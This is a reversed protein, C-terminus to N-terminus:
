HRILSKGTIEQPIDINMINLLTPAIDCLKGSELSINKNIGSGEEFILMLPVPNTTHATHPINNEEDKMLEANGHDATILMVGDNRIIADKLRGIATDVTEVAKVAAEMSGTHGVMDTNAFNVVTFDYKNSNITEVLKDTIEPASMEPQKDYTSVKPSPILIRDEGEYMEEVGGNFFFTVHAYKETEAIRLQKMGKNSIIEGLGNSITTTPFLTTLFENLQDSYEVMGVPDSFNIIKQREFGDFNEDVLASLLQRARDSRFNAMLISDGDNMGNYDPLVTPVIFEDSIDNEYNEEITKIPDQNSKGKGATIADYALEVRDWRNDRDMAYYRGSITSISINENDSIKRSLIALYDSASNPPTDRGDMFAHINVKVGNKAIIKALAIIHNIHSHVGGDSVLGMLHCTGDTKKLSNVLNVLVPNEKLSGDSISKNIKPLNQLIIRGSGISMHGVESNGMQGDPLGVDLGSTGITTNPYKAEIEDINPTNATKIANHSKENRCGWGDLICLIVPKNKKNNELSM